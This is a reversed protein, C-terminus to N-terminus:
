ILEREYQAFVALMGAMARGEATTMDFGQDIVVLEWGNQSGRKVLEAFGILSRTLRDLKAVVLTLAGNQEMSELAAPLGPRDKLDAAGSVGADEYVHIVNWGRREAEATIAQRQAELSVGSRAQEDTSCRVYGVVRM